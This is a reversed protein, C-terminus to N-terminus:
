KAGGKKKATTLEYFTGTKDDYAWGEPAEPRIFRADGQEHEDYAWGERVNDPAEVFLVDPPFMAEAQKLTRVTDTADWWCFGDVIQFIRM